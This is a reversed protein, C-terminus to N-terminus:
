EILLDVLEIEEQGVVYFKKKDLATEISSVPPYLVNFHEAVKAAGLHAFQAAATFIKDNEGFHEKKCINILGDFDDYGISYFRHCLNAGPANPNLDTGIIYYDHKKLESLYPVQDNNCGIFLLKNM